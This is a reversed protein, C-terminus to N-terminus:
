TAVRLPAWPSLWWALVLAFVIVGLITALKIRGMGAVAFSRYVGLDRLAFITALMALVGAVLSVIRHLFAPTRERLERPLAFYLVIYFALLILATLAAPRPETRVKRFRNVTAKSSANM